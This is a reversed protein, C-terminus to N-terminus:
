GVRPAGPCPLAPLSQVHLPPDSQPLQTTSCGPQVSPRGTMGGVSSRTAANRPCRLRPRSSTSSPHWLAPTKNSDLLHCGIRHHGPAQRLVRRDHDCGSAMRCGAKLRTPGDALRPPEPIKSITFPGTTSCSWILQRLLRKPGPVAGISGNPPSDPQHQHVGAASNRAQEVTGTQPM